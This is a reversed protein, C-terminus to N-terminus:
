NYEKIYSESKDFVFSEGYTPCLWTNLKQSPIIFGVWKKLPGPNEGWAYKIVNRMSVTGLLITVNPEKDKILKLLSPACMVAMKELSGYGRHPHCRVAPVVMCDRKMNVDFRSLVKKLYARAKGSFLDGSEDGKKGPVELVILIKKKFKGQPEIKPSNCKKSMGCKGCQPLRPEMITATFKSQSFFGDPMQKIWDFLTHLLVRM